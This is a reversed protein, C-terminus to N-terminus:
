SSAFFVLGDQIILGGLSKRSKNRLRLTKWSTLALVVFEICMSYILNATLITNNIRAIACGTGPVYVGEILIGIISLEPPFSLSM